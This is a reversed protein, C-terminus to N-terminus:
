WVAHSYPFLTRQQGDVRAIFHQRTTTYFLLLVPLLAQLGRTVIGSKEAVVGTDLIILRLGNHLPSVHPQHHSFPRSRVSILTHILLRLCQLVFNILRPQGRVSIFVRLHHLKYLRTTPANPTGDHLAVGFSEQTVHM